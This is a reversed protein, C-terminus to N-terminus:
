KMCAPIVKFHDNARIGIMGFKGMAAFVKALAECSQSRQSKQTQGPDNSMEKRVSRQLGVRGRLVRLQSLLTLPLRDHIATM